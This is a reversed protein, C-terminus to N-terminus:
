AFLDSVSRMEIVKKLGTSEKALKAKALSCLSPPKIVTLKGVEKLVNRAIDICSEPVYWSLTIVYDLLSEKVLIDVHIDRGLANQLAHLLINTSLCHLKSILDLVSQEPVSPMRVPDYLYRMYPLFTGWVLGEKLEYARIDAPSYACVSEMLAIIKELLSESFDTLYNSSGLVMQALVVSTYSRYPHSCM